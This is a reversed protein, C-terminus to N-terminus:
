IEPPDTHFLPNARTIQGTNGKSFVSLPYGCALFINGKGAPSRPFTHHQEFVLAHQRQPMAAPHREETLRGRIIDLAAASAAVHGHGVDPIHKVPHNFHHALFGNIRAGHLIVPVIHGGLVLIM